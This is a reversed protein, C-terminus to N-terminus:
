GRHRGHEGSERGGQMAQIAGAAALAGALYYGVTLAQNTRSESHPPDGLGMRRPLLLAGVGAATGLAVARSWIGRAPGVGALGYYAANALLDGGLTWRHLERPPPPQVGAGRLSKALARMGVVDMRPADGIARRGTEHLVTLFTSGILGGAFCTVLPM